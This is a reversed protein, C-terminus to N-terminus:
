NSDLSVESSTLIVAGIKEPLEFIGLAIIEGELNSIVIVDSGNPFFTPKKVLPVIFAKNTPGALYFGLRAYPLPGMPNRTGAEGAGARYFRPYLARGIDVGVENEAIMQEIIQKENEPLLDSDLLTALMEIKNHEPFQPRISREVVPLSCGVLFVGTIAFYFAAQRWVPKPSSSGQAVRYTTIMPNDILKPKWFLSIFRVTLATLGISFYMLGIWDAPLIYRGGSKRIIALTLIHATAYILPLLGVLRYNKWATYVGFIVIYINLILPILAQRPFWGDWQFWFPLRRPYEIASCCEEWLKESDRHGMFGVLSDLPRFTTPLTLFVQLESHITHSFVYRAIQGSNRLLYDV